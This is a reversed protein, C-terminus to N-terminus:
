WSCLNESCGRFTGRPELLLRGLQVLCGPIVVQGVVLQDLQQQLLLALEALLLLVDLLQLVVDVLQQHADHLLGGRQQLDGQAPSGGRGGSAAWPLLATGASGVGGAGGGRVGAGWVEAGVRPLLPDRSRGLVLKGWSPELSSYPAALVRHPPASGEGRPLGRATM